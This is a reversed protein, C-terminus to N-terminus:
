SYYARRMEEYYAEEEEQQERDFDAETCGEESCAWPLIKRGDPYCARCWAKHDVCLHGLEGSLDCDPQPTQCTHEAPVAEVIKEGHACYVGWEPRQADELSATYLGGATTRVQVHGGTKTLLTGTVLHGQSRVTLMCGIQPWQCEPAPCKEIPGEHPKLSEDSQYAYHLIRVGAKEADGISRGEGSGADM